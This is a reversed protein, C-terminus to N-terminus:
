DHGAKQSRWLSCGELSRQGHFQKPLISSHSDMGKELPDKQGVFQRRPSNNKEAESMREKVQNMQLKNQGSFIKNKLHSYTVALIELQKSKVDYQQQKM